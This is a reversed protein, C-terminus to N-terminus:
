LKVNNSGAIVTDRWLLASDDAASANEESLLLKALYETFASTNQADFSQTRGSKVLLYAQEADNRALRKLGLIVLKLMNNKFPGQAM